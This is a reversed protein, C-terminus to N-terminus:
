PSMRVTQYKTEDYVRTSIALLYDDADLSNTADYIRLVYHLRLHEHHQRESISRSIRANFRSSSLSILSMLAAALCPLWTHGM